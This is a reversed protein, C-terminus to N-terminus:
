RRHDSIFKSFRKYVKQELKSTLFMQRTYLFQMRKWRIDAAQRSIRCLQIIDDASQVNCGWLVCAPALLRSAFVNAERESEHDYTYVNTIHDLMIHGMEHAVTFRQREVSMTPNVIIYPKGDLFMSYGDAIAESYKLAIGMSKCLATMNVPLECVKERYLIEWALNRSIKYRKYNM